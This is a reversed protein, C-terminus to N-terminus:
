RHKKLSKGGNLVKQGMGLYAVWWKDRGSLGVDSRLKAVGVKKFLGLSLKVTSSFINSDRNSKTDNNSEQDGM